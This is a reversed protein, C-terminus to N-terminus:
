ARASIGSRAPTHLCPQRRSCPARGRAATPLRAIRADASTAKTRGIEGKRSQQSQLEATRAALEGHVLPRELRRNRRKGRVRSRSRRRERRSRWSPRQREFPKAVVTEIQDREAKSLSSAPRAAMARATSCETRARWLGSTWTISGLHRAPSPDRRAPERARALSM